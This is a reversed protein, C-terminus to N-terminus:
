PMMSDLVYVAQACIASQKSGFVTNHENWVIYGNPKTHTKNCIKYLKYIQTLVETGCWRPICNVDAVWIEMNYKSVSPM